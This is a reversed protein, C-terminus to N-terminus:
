CKRSAPERAPWSFTEGEGSAANADAGANLLLDVVTASGNIAALELPTVGYRNASRVQAGRDLLARVLKADDLQVAWHLATTGDAEVAHGSAGQKLLEMARAADGAHIVEALRANTQARTSATWTGIALLVILVRKKFRSADCISWGM